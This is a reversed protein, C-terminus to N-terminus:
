GPQTRSLMPLWTVPKYRRPSLVVRAAWGMGGVIWQSGGQGRDSPDTKYGLRSM